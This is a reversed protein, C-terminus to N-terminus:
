TKAQKLLDWIVDHCCGLIFRVKNQDYFCRETHM